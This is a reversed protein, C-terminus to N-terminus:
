MSIAAGVAVAYDALKPFHFEIGMLGSLNKFVAEARPLTSVRGVLIVDKNGTSKAAGNALVAVTQFVLNLIALALDSENADDASKGFNSATLTDPLGPIKTTAIDGVTLDVRDLRGNKAKEGLLGVDRIGLIYKSLGVLTGGGVGTGGWHRTAAGDVEVLATGTGMSVVIAKSLGALHCGGHGIAEFEQVKKVPLDFLHDEVRGAGVGTVAVQRIESLKLKAESLFRGLAGAASALPDDAKVSIPCVMKRDQYGIIKTTTGGIDIGIIM